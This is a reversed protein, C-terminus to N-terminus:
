PDAVPAGAAVLGRRVRSPLVFLIHGLAEAFEVSQAAEEGTAHPNQNDAHRRNNAELRVHHAWAAMDGTIIHDAAARDIRTFLSGDNLGKAKLMADVASAALMVAGDPAHLSAQAQSLYARAPEPIAVDVSRTAPIVETVGGVAQINPGAGSALAVGGCSSCVYMAWGRGNIGQHDTTHTGTGVRQMLPNKVGCRPCSEIVLQAPLSM